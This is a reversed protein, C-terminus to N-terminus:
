GVSIAFTADAFETSGDETVQVLVLEDGVSFDISVTATVFADAKTWTVAVCSEKTKNVVLFISDATSGSVTQAQMSVTVSDGAFEIPVGSAGTELPYVWGQTALPQQTIATFSVLRMEIFFGAEGNPGNAATCAVWDSPPVFHVYLTGATTVYAATDDEFTTVPAWVSGNWYYPTIVPDTGTLAQSTTVKIKCFKESYGILFGDTAIPTPALLEVDGAGADTFDTTYDIYAPSASPANVWIQEIQCPTTTGGTADCEIRVWYGVVGDVNSLEWDTPVTFALNRTGTAAEFATTGDVVDSLAVFASGNWYKFTFTTTTYNGQTSIEFDISEFQLSAHGVFIADGEAITTGVIEVDDATSENAPTTENVYVGGDRTLCLVPQTYSKLLAASPNTPTMQGLLVGDTSPGAVNGLNGPVTHCLM